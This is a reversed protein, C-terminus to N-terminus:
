RNAKAGTKKKYRDDLHKGDKINQLAFMLRCAAHALHNEKSEPDLDEGDMFAIIHRIACSCNRSVEMGKRFNHFDGYKRHGYAQVRAVARIGEPPLMALPPKNGDDTKAKIRRRPMTMTKTERMKSVRHDRWVGRVGSGGL